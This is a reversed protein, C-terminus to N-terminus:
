VPRTLRAGYKAMYDSYQEREGTLAPQGREWNAPCLNGTQEHYQHADITRIIESINRGIHFDNMMQSRIVRMKDMFFTARVPLTGNVLVDYNQAIKRTQDSVVPFSVRGDLGGQDMSQNIWQQMSMHSDCSLAIVAVDRENFATMAANLALLETPCIYSFAMSFFFLVSMKGQVHAAYDFSEINSDPMIAMSTFNPATQGIMLM